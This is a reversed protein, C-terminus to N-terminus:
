KTRDAPKPSIVPKRLFRLSLTLGIGQNFLSIKKTSRNVFVLEYHNM